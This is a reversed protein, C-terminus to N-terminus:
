AYGGEEEIREAAERPPAERRYPASPRSESRYGRGPEPGYVGGYGASSEYGRSGAYGRGSDYGRDRGGGRAESGSSKLFRAGALGLAFAGGLFLPANDRAFRRAERTLGDVDRRELYRSAGEVREAVTELFRSYQRDDEPLDESGRRLADAVTRMGGAVREKQEDARSRAESAAEHGLDRAKEKGEEVLERGRDRAEAAVAEASSEARYVTSRVKEKAKGTANEPERRRHREASEHSEAM